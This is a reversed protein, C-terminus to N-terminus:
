PASGAEVPLPDLKRFLPQPERLARGPVPLSAFWGQDALPEEHGLLAHLKEASFPLYPSFAVKLVEIAALAAYLSRAAAAPDTSRTRWPEEQNLYRNTEQAYALATRLGERFRCAGISAGVSELAAVGQDILAQDAPL